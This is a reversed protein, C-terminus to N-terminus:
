LVHRDEGLFRIDSFLETLIACAGGFAYLIVGLLVMLIFRGTEKTMCGALNWRAMQCERSLSDRVLLIFVVCLGNKIDESGNTDERWLM